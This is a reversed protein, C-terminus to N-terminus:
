PGERGSTRRRGACRRLGANEQRIDLPFNGPIDLVAFGFFHPDMDGLARVAPMQLEVIIGAAVTVAGVALGYLFLEPHILPPRFYNVGRVEVKDERQGM